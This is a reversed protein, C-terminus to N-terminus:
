RTNKKKYNVNLSNFRFYIYPLLIVLTSLFPFSLVYVLNNSNLTGSAKSLIYGFLLSLFTVSIIVTVVLCMNKIANKRIGEGLKSDKKLINRSIEIIMIEAIITIVIVIIIFTLAARNMEQKKFNAGLVYDTMLESKLKINEQLLNTKLQEITENENNSVIFCLSYVLEGVTSFKDITAKSIVVGKELLPFSVSYGIATIKETITTAGLVYTISDGVKAGLKDSATKDIYAGEDFNINGSVLTQSNLLGIESKSVDEYLLINLTQSINGLSIDRTFQYAPLVNDVSQLENIMSLDEESPSHVVINFNTKESTALKSTIDNQMKNISINGLLLILFALIGIIFNLIIMKKM